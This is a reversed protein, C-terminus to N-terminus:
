KKKSSWWESWGEYFKKGGFSAYVAKEPCVEICEGCFTCNTDVVRDDVNEDRVKYVRMDCSTVCYNCKTCKQHDKQISLASNRNFVSSLAGVPCLYRCWFRPIVVAAGIIIIITVLALIRTPDYFQFDGTNYVTGLYYIDPSPCITCFPAIQSTGAPYVEKYTNGAVQNNLLTLGISAALLVTLLLVAYKVMAMREHGKDSFERSRFGLKTRIKTILDHVLGIPCLWACLARGVLICVLFLVAISIIIFAMPWFSSLSRYLIGINCVRQEGVTEGPIGPYDFRLMPLLPAIYHGGLTTMNLFVFGILVQVGLRLHRIRFINRKIKIESEEKM